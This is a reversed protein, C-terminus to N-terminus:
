LFQIITFGPGPFYQIKLFTISLMATTLLTLLLGSVHQVVNGLLGTVQCWPLDAAGDCLEHGTELGAPLAGPHGADGTHHGHALGPHDCRGELCFPTELRYHLIDLGSVVM